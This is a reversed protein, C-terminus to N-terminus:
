LYIRLPQFFEILFTKFFPASPTPVGPFHLIRQLALQSLPLFTALFRSHM